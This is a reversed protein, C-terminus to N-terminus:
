SVGAAMTGEENEDEEDGILSGAVADLSLATLAPTGCVLCSPDRPINVWQASYPALTVGDMIEMAVNALIVTNAPYPRHQPQGALLTNLAMDAQASAVRVVHLYLGPEAEITGEDSIM